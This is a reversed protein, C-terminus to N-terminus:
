KLKSYTSQIKDVGWTQHAFDKISNGLEQRKDKNLLLKQTESGLVKYNFAEVGIYNEDNKLTGKLWDMEYAIVPLGFFAVERLASGTLPSLFIDSTLYYDAIEILTKQGLFHIKDQIKLDESLKKLEILDEGSGIINLHLDIGLDQVIKIAKIAHDVCKESKLRSVLLANYSDKKISIYSSNKIKELFYPSPIEEIFLELIELKKSFTKDNQLWKIYEGLSKSTIVKYCTRASLKLLYKEISIPIKYSLSKGTIKYMLSPITIPILYIPNKIKNSFMFIWFLFVQEYSFYCDFKLRKRLNYLIFPALLINKLYNGKGLTLIITNNNRYIKKDSHHNLFVLFVKESLNEYHKLQWMNSDLDNIAPSYGASMNVIAIKKWKM